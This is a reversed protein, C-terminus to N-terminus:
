ADLSTGGTGGGARWRQPSAWWAWAWTGRHEGDPEASGDASILEFGRRECFAHYAAEAAAGFRLRDSRPGAPRDADVRDDAHVTVTCGELASALKDLQSGTVEFGGLRFRERRQDTGSPARRDPHLVKSWVGSM